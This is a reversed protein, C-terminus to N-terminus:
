NIFFFCSQMGLGILAGILAGVVPSLKYVVEGVKGRMPPTVKAKRSGKTALNLKPTETDVVVLETISLDEEMTSLRTNDSPKLM